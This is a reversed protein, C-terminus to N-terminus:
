DGTQLRLSCCDWFGNEKSLKFNARVTAVDVLMLGRSGKEYRFWGIWCLERAGGLM